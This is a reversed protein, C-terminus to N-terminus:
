DLITSHNHSHEKDHCDPCLPELRSPDHLLHDLIFQAIEQRDCGDLHHVDLKLQRGKATSQKRGCHACCYGTRKLAASREPSRLWVYRDIARKIQALTSRTRAPKPKKAM